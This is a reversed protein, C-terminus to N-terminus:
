AAATALAASPLDIVRQQGRQDVPVADHAHLVKAIAEILLLEAVVEDVEHVLRSAGAPNRRRGPRARAARAHLGLQQDRKEPHDRQDDKQARDPHLHQAPDVRAGLLQDLQLALDGGIALDLVVGRALQVADRRRQQRLVLALQVADETLEALEAVVEVPQLVHGLVLDIEQRAHARVVVAEDRDHGPRHLAGAGALDVLRARYSRSARGSASRSSRRVLWSTLTASASMSSCMSALWRGIVQGAPRGARASPLM